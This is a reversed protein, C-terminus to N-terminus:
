QTLAKAAEYTLVVKRVHSITLISKALEAAPIM